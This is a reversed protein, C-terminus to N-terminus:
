ITVVSVFLNRKTSIAAHSDQPKYSPLIALHCGCLNQSLFEPTERVGPSQSPLHLLLSAAGALPLHLGRPRAERRQM